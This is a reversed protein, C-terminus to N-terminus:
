TNQILGLLGVSLFLFPIVGRKLRSNEQRHSRYEASQDKPEKNSEWESAPIKKRHSRFMDLDGRSKRDPGNTLPSPRHKKQERKRKRATIEKRWRMHSERDPESATSRSISRVGEHVEAEKEFGDSSQDALVIDSPHKELSSLQEASTERQDIEPLLGKTGDVDDNVLGSSLASSLSPQANRGESVISRGENRDEDLANGDLVIESQFIKNGDIFAMKKSQPIPTTTVEGHIPATMDEELTVVPGIYQRLLKVNKIEGESVSEVNRIAPPTRVNFSGDDERLDAADEEDHVKTAKLQGSTYDLFKQLLPNDRTAAEAYDSSLISAPKIDRELDDLIGRTGLEKIYAQILVKHDRIVASPFGDRILERRFEKWVAREDGAYSTLSSGEGSPDAMLYATIENVARKIDKLDGGAEDMQQEVRGISDMNVMNIYLGLASTYYILKGRVEAINVLEGNGFKVRKWLNSASKQDTSLANYQQLVKNLYELNSRCGCAISTLEAEYSGRRHDLIKHPGMTAHQLRQLVVNLAKVERTLEAHEGCAKRTNSVTKGVLQVLLAIDSVSCGFSM